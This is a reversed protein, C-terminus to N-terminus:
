MCYYVSVHAFIEGTSKKYCECLLMAATFLTAKSQSFEYHSLYCVCNYMIHAIGITVVIARFTWTKNMVVGPSFM